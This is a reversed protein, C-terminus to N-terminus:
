RDDPRAVALMPSTRPRVRGLVSDAKRIVWGDVAAHTGLDIVKSPTRNPRVETSLKLSAAVFFGLTLGGEIFRRRSIRVMGFTGGIARLWLAPERPILTPFLDGRTM